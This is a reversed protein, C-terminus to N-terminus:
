IEMMAVESSLVFVAVNVAIKKFRSALNYFNFPSGSSQINLSRIKNLNCQVELVHFCSM